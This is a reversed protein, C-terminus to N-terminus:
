GLMRKRLSSEIEVVEASLQETKPKRFCMAAHEMIRNHLEAEMRARNRAEWPYEKRAATAM